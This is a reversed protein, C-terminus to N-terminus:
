FSLHPKKSKFLLGKKVHLLHFCSCLFLGVCDSAWCQKYLQTKWQFARLEGHVKTERSAEIVM